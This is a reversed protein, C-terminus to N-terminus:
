HNARIIENIEDPAQTRAIPLLALESPEIGNKKLFREIDANM